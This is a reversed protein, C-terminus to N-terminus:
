ESPLLNVASTGQIAAERLKDLLERGGEVEMLRHGMVMSRAKREMRSANALDVKKKAIDQQLETLQKGLEASQDQLNRIVPIVADIAPVIGLSGLDTISEFGKLEFLRSYEKVLEDGKETGMELQVVVKVKTSAEVKTESNELARQLLTLTAIRSDKIASEFTRSIKSDVSKMGKFGRLAAVLASIKTPDVLSDAEAVLKSEADKVFTNVEKAIQVSIETMKGRIESAQETNKDIAEILMEERMSVALVALDSQDISGAAFTLNSLPSAPLTSTTSASASAATSTKKAM